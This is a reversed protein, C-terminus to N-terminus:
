FLWHLLKTLWGPGQARSVIGSGEFVIVADSINFSYVSNDSQIDSPRVIGSIKITQEEGNVTITRNGNVVLNGNTLVSDVRASIKARVSGHSATAGEGKFQNGLGLGGSFETGPSGSTKMSGSVSLNSERSASTKADNSASSVEVVLITVADGQRNAKQDSFLSRGVNERMDQGIVVSSLVASLVVLARVTPM